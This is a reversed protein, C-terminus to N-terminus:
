LAASSQSLSVAIWSIPFISCFPMSARVIEGTLPIDQSSTPRISLSSRVHASEAIHPKDVCIKDEIKGKKDAM